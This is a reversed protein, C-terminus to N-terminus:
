PAVWDKLRKICGCGAFVDPDPINVAEGTRMALVIARTAIIWLRLPYPIGYWDVGLWTVIGDRYPLGYLALAARTAPDINSQCGCM